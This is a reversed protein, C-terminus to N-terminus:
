QSTIKKESVVAFDQSKDVKIKFQIKYTGSSEFHVAELPWTYWFSEKSQEMPVETTRIVDGAPSVLDIKFAEIPTSLSDVQASVVFDLKKGLPVAGFPTELSDKKGLKEAVFMHVNPKYMNVTKASDDWQVVAQLSDSLARLPLVVRGDIMFAPVDSEPVGSGNLQVRVKDFGKYDGWPSGAYVIGAGLVVLTATLAALRKVKM